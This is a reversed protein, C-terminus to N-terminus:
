LVCDAANLASQLRERNRDSPWRVFSRTAADLDRVAQPITGLPNGPAQFTVSQGVETDKVTCRCNALPPAVNITPEYLPQYCRQFKADSQVYLVGSADQVLWDGTEAVAGNNLVIRRIIRPKLISGANGYGYAAIQNPCADILVMLDAVNKDNVDAPPIRAAVCPKEIYKM